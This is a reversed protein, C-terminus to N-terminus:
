VRRRLEAISDIVLDAEVGSAAVLDDRYKGTKVLVSRIGALQGGTIDNFVDDGVMVVDEPGMNMEGLAARFLEPSPKGIITAPRGTAYELGAVFAGIDLKLGEDVQWYRGRHTAVIEAGDMVDRFLSNMLDYSWANGIDGIVIAEPHPSERFGAFDARVSESVVLRVSKVGRARLYRAAAEPTTVFEEDAIDFGMDRMRGALETRTRTSTNTVLRVPVGRTHLHALTEIAGPVPTRGVFWVGDMDSLLGRIKALDDITM